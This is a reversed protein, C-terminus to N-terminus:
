KTLSKIISAGQLSFLSKIGGNKIMTFLQMLDNKHQKFFPFMSQINDGSLMRMNSVENMAQQVFEKQKDDACDVVLYVKRLM